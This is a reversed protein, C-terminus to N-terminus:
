AVCHVVGGTHDVLEADDCRTVSTVNKAEALNRSYRLVKTTSVRPDGSEHRGPNAQILEDIGQASAPGSTHVSRERAGARAALVEGCGRRRLSM